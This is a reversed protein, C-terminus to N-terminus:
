GAVLIALKDNPGDLKGQLWEKLKGKGELPPM